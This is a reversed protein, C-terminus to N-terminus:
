TGVKKNILEVYSPIRRSEKPSNYRECRISRPLLQYYLEALSFNQMKLDQLLDTYGQTSAVICDDLGTVDGNEIKRHVNNAEDEAPTILYVKAGRYVQELRATRWQPTEALMKFHGSM